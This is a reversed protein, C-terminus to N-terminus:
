QLYGVFGINLGTVEVDDKDFFTIHEVHVATSKDLAFQIGFGIGTDDDDTSFTVNSLSATLEVNSPGVMAYIKTTDSVNVSGKLFLFTTDVGFDVGFLDDEILSTGFDFGVGIYENFDYGLRGYINTPSVTDVGDDFDVFSGGLSWYGGVEANVSFSVLALLGIILNKM